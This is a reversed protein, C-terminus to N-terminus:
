HIGETQVTDGYAIWTQMSPVVCRAFLGLLLPILPPIALSYRFVSNLLM